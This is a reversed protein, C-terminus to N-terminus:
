RLDIHIGRTADDCGLACATVSAVADGLQWGPFMFSSVSVALKEHQGTCMGSLFSSGQTQSFGRPQIVQANVNYGSGPPCKVTVELTILGSTVYYANASVAVRTPAPAATAAAPAALLAAAAIAITTRYMSTRTM